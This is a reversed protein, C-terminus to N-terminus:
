EDKAEKSEKQGTSVLKTISKPATVILGQTTFDISKPESNLLEKHVLVSEQAKTDLIYVSRGASYALLGESPHVSMLKPLKISAHVFSSSVQGTLFSMIKIHNGSLAAFCQSACAINSVAQNFFAQRVTMHAKKSEFIAVSGTEFGLVHKEESFDVATIDACSSSQNAKLMINRIYRTEPTYVSVTTNDNWFCGKAMPTSIEGLKGSRMGNVRYNKSDNKKHSVIIFSTQDVSSTPATLIYLYDGSKTYCSTNSYVAEEPSNLVRLVQALPQQTATTTALFASDPSWAADIITHKYSLKNKDEILKPTGKFADYLRIHHESTQPGYSAQMITCQDPSLRTLYNEEGTPTAREFSKIFQSFSKKAIKVKEEQPKSSQEVSITKKEPLEASYSISSAILSVFVLVHYTHNM